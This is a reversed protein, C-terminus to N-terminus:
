GASRSFLLDSSSVEHEVSWRKRFILTNRGGMSLVACDPGEGRQTQARFGNSTIRCRKSVTSLRAICAPSTHTTVAPYVVNLYSRRCHPLRRGKLREPSFERKTGFPSM